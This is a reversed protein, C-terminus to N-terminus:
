FKLFDFLILDVTKLFVRCGRDIAGGKSDIM